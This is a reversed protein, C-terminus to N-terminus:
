VCRYVRDCGGFDEYEKRKLGLTPVVDVSESEVELDLGESDDFCSIQRVTINYGM